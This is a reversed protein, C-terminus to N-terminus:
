PFPARTKMQTREIDIAFGKGHQKWYDAQPNIWEPEEIEVRSSKMAETSINYKNDRKQVLEPDVMGLNVGQPSMMLAPAGLPLKDGRDVEYAHSHWLKQEEPPLAEFIKDSVIYEVGILRGSSDDTDYVACQLFDQNLRTVYHHTEIQRSMDHSYLAFTCVHQNMQKIPKLSQMMQAGKDLLHQYMTMPAGPPQQEGYPPTPEPSKDSFIDRHPLFETKIAAEKDKIEYLEMPDEPFQLKRNRIAAVYVQLIEIIASTGQAVQIRYLPLGAGFIIVALLIAITCLSFGWDWGKNDQIWVILTSSVAGGLCVALLLGNFFSSMNRAEQPDKEDFQDAGHSPLAAKIGATGAAILYIAVFLLAANGGEIEECHSTPDFVNCPPPKLNPYHALFEVSGSIIVSKYRGIYTDALFAVLISLIYSTGMFNTVQNAADALEMHLVGNFYTVFNVALAFTAMQEFGFSALILLSTKRGGHKYKLAQRGKWDVKGEIHEPTEM